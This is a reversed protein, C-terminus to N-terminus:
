VRRFQNLPPHWSNKSLWKLNTNTKQKWQHIFQSSSKQLFSSSPELASKSETLKTSYSMWKPIKQMLLINKLLSLIYLFSIVGFHSQCTQARSFCSKLVIDKTFFSKKSFIRRWILWTLATTSSSDWHLAMINLILTELLLLTRKLPM